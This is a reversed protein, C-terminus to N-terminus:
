LSGGIQVHTLFLKSGACKAHPFVAHLSTDEGYVTKGDGSAAFLDPKRDRLHGEITGAYSPFFFLFLSLYFSLFRSISSQREGRERVAGTSVGPKKNGGTLLGSIYIYGM